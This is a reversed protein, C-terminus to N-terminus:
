STSGAAAPEPEPGDVEPLDARLLRRRLDDMHRRLSGDYITNGTRVIIGGLIEPRVKVHPIVTKDFLRSLRDRVADRAEEDLERAVVVHAHVRGLHDDLLRHYQHSIARLLRQRRKDITVLLFNVLLRPLEEGFVKRVVEKKIEPDIRPTELFLRIDPEEELLEAVGRIGEGYSEEAGQSRALEFLTEAYNRAVTEDRV